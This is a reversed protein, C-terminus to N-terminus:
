AQEVEVLVNNGVLEQVVQELASKVELTVLEETSESDKYLKSVKVVLVSEVLKAM